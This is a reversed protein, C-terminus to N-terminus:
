QDTLLRDQAEGRLKRIITEAPCFGTFASQALNLGVFATVLLWLPSVFYYLVLSLTVISGALLRISHEVSM